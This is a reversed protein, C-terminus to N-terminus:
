DPRLEIMWHFGVVEILELVIIILIRSSFRVAVGGLSKGLRLKSIIM